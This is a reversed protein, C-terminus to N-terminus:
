NTAIGHRRYAKSVFLAGLQTTNDTLRYHLVAFGALKDGDEAGILVGGADLM